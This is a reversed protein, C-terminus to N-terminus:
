LQPLKVPHFIDTHNRESIHPRSCLILFLSEQPRKQIKCSTHLHFCIRNGYDLGNSFGQLFTGHDFNNIWHTTCLPSSQKGMKFNLQWPKKMDWEWLRKGQGEECPLNRLLLETMKTFRDEWKRRAASWMAKGWNGKLAREEGQKRAM